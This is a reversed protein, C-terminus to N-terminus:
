SKSINRAKGRHLLFAPTKLMLLLQLFYAAFVGVFGDAMQGLSWRDLFGSSVYKYAGIITVVTLALGILAMIRVYISPRSGFALILILISLVGVSVGAAKHYNALDKMARLFTQGSSESGPWILYFTVWHGSIGQVACIILVAITAIWLIKQSIKQFMM